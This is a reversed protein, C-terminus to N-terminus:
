GMHIREADIKIDKRALIAAQRSRLSYLNRVTTIADQANTQDVGEITRISNKLKQLLTKAVTDIKEAITTVNAKTAV